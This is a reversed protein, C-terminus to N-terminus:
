FMGGAPYGTHAPLRVMRAELRSEQEWVQKLSIALPALVRHTGSVRTM